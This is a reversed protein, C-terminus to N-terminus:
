FTKVFFFCSSLSPPNKTPFCPFQPPPSAMCNVRPQHHILTKWVQLPQLLLFFGVIPPHWLLDFLGGLTRGRLELNTRFLSTHNVFPSSMLGSDHPPPPLVFISPSRGPQPTVEFPPFCQSGHPQLVCKTKPFFASPPSPPPPPTCLNLVVLPPTWPPGAGEPFVPTPNGRYQHTQRLLLLQPFMIVLAFTGWTQCFRQDPQHPLTPSGNGWGMQNPPKQTHFQSAPPPVPFCGTPPTLSPFMALGPLTWCHRISPTEGRFFLERKLPNPPHPTTPQRGKYILCFGFFAAKIIKPDALGPTKFSFTPSSFPLKVGFL